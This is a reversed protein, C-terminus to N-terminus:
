SIYISSLKLGNGLTAMNWVFNGAGRLPWTNYANGSTYVYFFLEYHHKSNFTYNWLWHGAVSSVNTAVLSNNHNSKPSCPPLCNNIISTVTGNNYNCSLTSNGWTGSPGTWATSNSCSWATYNYTLVNLNFFVGNAGVTNSSQPIYSGNSEDIMYAYSSSYVSAGAQCYANGGWSHSWDFSSTNNFNLPHPFPATGTGHSTGNNYTVSTVVGSTYANRDQYTYNTYQYYNGVPTKTHGWSESYYLDDYKNGQNCGPRGGDTSRASAIWTASVNAEVHKAGAPPHFAVGVTLQGYASNSSSTGIGFLASKCMRATGSASSGGAGSTLNFSPAKLFKIGGCGSQYVSTYASAAGKFPAGLNATHLPSGSASQSLVVLLVVALGGGVPTLALRKAARRHRPTSENSAATAVM